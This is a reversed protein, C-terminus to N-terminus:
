RSFGVSLHALPSCDMPDCLSVVSTVSCMCVISLFWMFLFEIKPFERSIWHNPSQTEVARPLTQNRTLSTLDSMGCPATLFLCVFLFM